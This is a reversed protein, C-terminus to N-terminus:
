GPRVRELVRALRDLENRNKAHLAGLRGVYAVLAVLIVAYAGVLLPGGPVKEGPAGEVAQFAASRSEAATETEGSKGDEAVASSMTGLWVSGLGLAFIWGLRSQWKM